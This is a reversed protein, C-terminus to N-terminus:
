KKKGMKETNVMKMHRGKGKENEERSSGKGKLVGRLVPCPAILPAGHGTWRVFHQIQIKKAKGLNVELM